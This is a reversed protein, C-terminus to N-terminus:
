LQNVEISDCYPFTHLIVCVKGLKESCDQWTSAMKDM